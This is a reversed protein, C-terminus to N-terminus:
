EVLTTNLIKAKEIHQEILQIEQVDADTQNKIYQMCRLARDWHKRLICHGRIYRMIDDNREGAFSDEIELAKKFNKMNKKCGIGNMLLLIHAGSYVGMDHLEKGIAFLSLIDNKQRYLELLTHGILHLQIKMVPGYLAFLKALDWTVTLLYIAEDLQETDSVKEYREAYEAFLDIYKLKKRALEHTASRARSYLESIVDRHETMEINEYCVGRLFMGHVCDKHDDQELFQIMGVVMENNSSVMDRLGLEVFKCIACMSDGM